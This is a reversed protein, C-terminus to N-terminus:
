EAKVNADKIVKAWKAIEGHIQASTQTPTTYTPEVGQQALTAKVEPLNLLVKVEANLKDIIAQPTGAPALLGYTAAVDFGPLGAEAATPVEPMVTSRTENAYALVRLKPSKLFPAIAPGTEFTSQVQGGLLDTMSPGSGKYPVHVLKTGTMLEFLEGGLHQTTGIGASSFTVQKPRQKVYAVYEALSNVPMATNVVLALPAKGLMSIPAFDTELNYNTQEPALTQSISAATVACMLLTYGDKAAKSAYKAGVNGGFGSRNEVIFSQKLQKSLAQAVVRGIVDSSGGPPYAVILTVPRSPYDDALAAGALLCAAIGIAAKFIRMTLGKM